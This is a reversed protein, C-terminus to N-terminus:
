RGHENAMLKAVQDRLIKETGWDFKHDEKVPGHDIIEVWRGDVQRMNQKMCPCRPQGNQPGICGCANTRGNPQTYVNNRM